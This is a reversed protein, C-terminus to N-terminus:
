RRKGMGGWWSPNTNQMTTNQQVNHELSQTHFNRTEHGGVARYIQSYVLPRILSAILSLDGSRIAFREQNLSLWKAFELLQIKILMNAKTEDFNSLVISQNIHARLFSTVGSLGDDNIKPKFWSPRERTYRGSVPDIYERYGGLVEEVYRVLENDKWRLEAITSNESSTNFFAGPPAQPPPMIVTDEM